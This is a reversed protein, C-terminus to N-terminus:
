NKRRNRASKFKRLLIAFRGDTKYERVLPTRSFYNQAFELVLLSSFQMQYALNANSEQILTEM